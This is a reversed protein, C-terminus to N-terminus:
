RLEENLMQIENQLLEMDDEHNASEERTKQENETVMQNFRRNSRDREEHFRQELRM